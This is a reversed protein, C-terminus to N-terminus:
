MNQRLLSEVFAGTGSASLLAYIDISCINWVIFDHAEIGYEQRRHIIIRLLQDSHHQWMNSERHGAAAIQSSDTPDMLEIMAKSARPRFLIFAM